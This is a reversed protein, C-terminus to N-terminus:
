IVDIKRFRETELRVRSTNYCLTMTNYLSLLIKSNMEYEDQLKKSKQGSEIKDLVELNYRAPKLFCKQM